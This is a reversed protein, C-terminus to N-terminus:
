ESLNSAYWKYPNIITLQWAITAEQTFRGLKELATNVAQNAAIVGGIPDDSKADVTEDFERYAIVKNSINDILTARLTFQVQSPKSKILKSNSPMGNSTDSNFIQILQVIESELRIDSKVSSYKPLVAKFGDTKEIISILLPQLMRAPTDVWENKAFYELQHPLRTYMMRRTDFGANAKPMNVILTPLKLMTNLAFKEPLKTQVRELSYYTTQLPKKSLLANCGTMLPLSFLLFIYPNKLLKELLQKIM